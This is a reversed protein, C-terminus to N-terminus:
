HGANEVETKTGDGEAAASLAACFDECIDAFGCYRCNEGNKGPERQFDGEQAARKFSELKESLRLKMADDYVCSVSQGYRLYRYEAGRVDFGAQECLWAYIVVQLCSDIDDREHEVSRKTKFDGILCSGDPLRELRDPFGFLRIGSPHEFSYMEESSLVEKDVSMDQDYAKMMMDTFERKERDAESSYIPPRKSLFAEFARQVAGRFAERTTSRDKLLEMLSHALDGRDKASMVQFPDDTEPEPLRLVRSLYFRCPCQFFVELATPSWQRGLIDSPDAAEARVRQGTYVIGRSYQEGIGSSASLGADFLEARKLSAYLDDVSSGPHEREFLEFLMSSPNREKLDALGFDSFSLETSVGLEKALGVLANLEEKKAEIRGASSLNGLGQAFGELDSDLLLYDEAPNGPFSDSSLGCVYLRKRMCSLAGRISTVHLAAPRSIESCVSRALIEPVMEAPDGGHVYAAYSDLIETIVNLAARDVNGDKPDKGTRIVSFTRLFASMGKALVESFRKVMPLPDFEGQAGARSGETIGGSAEYAQLKRENEAGDFSLRLSGCLEIFSELERRGPRTGGAPEGLASRDFSDSMVVARLSDIGNYGHSNWFSVLKLLKAPCSDLIPVGMGFSMPISYRKSIGYFVQSYSSDACAIVCEDLAAGKAYIDAIIGEAESIRGYAETFGTNGASIGGRSAGYLNKLSVRKLTGGSLKEALAEELPSLPFEVLSLIELGEPAPMCGTEGGDRRAAPSANGEEGQHAACLASAEGLAKRILGVADIRGGARLVATYRRYVDLLAENKESFEGKSLAESMGQEEDGPILMRAATVAAALDQAVSYSAFDQGENGGSGSSFYGIEKLFSYIVSPQEKSSLYSETVCIGSRMLAIRALEAAGEVRLGITNVGHRALSRLLETGNAGPAIVISEKM